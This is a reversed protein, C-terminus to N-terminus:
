DECVVVQYFLNIETYKIIDISTKPHYEQDKQLELKFRYVLLKSM